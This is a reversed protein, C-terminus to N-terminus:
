WVGLLELIVKGSGSWACTSYDWQMPSYIEWCFCLFHYEGGASLKLLINRQLVSPQSSSIAWPLYRPYKEYLFFLRRDGGMMGWWVYKCYSFIRPSCPHLSEFFYWVFASPNWKECLGLCSYFAACLWSLDSFDSSWIYFIIVTTSLVINHLQLWSLIFSLHEWWFFFIFIHPSTNILCLSDKWLYIM